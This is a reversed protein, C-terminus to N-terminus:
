RSVVRVLARRCRELDIRDGSRLEQPRDSSPLCIKVSDDGLVEASNGKVILATGDDIGVGVFNDDIAGRLRDIRWPRTKHHQDIVLDDFFGLGTDLEATTRGRAIMRSSMASAGASTGGVVGGREVLEKLKKEVLTGRYADTLRTQDGGGLWVGTATDLPSAFAPDNAQERDRTHLICFRGSDCNGEMFDAATKTPDDGSRGATPIVVIVANDGGALEMFREHVADPLKGGGAIVFTGQQATAAPRTNLEAPTGREEQQPATLLVGALLVRRLARLGASATPATSPRALSSPTEAAELM